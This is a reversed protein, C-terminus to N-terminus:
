FKVLTQIKRVFIIDSFDSDNAYVNIFIRPFLNIKKLNRILFHSSKQSM